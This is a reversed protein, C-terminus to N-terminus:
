RPVIAIEIRPNRQTATAEPNPRNVQSQGYGVPVWRYGEGLRDALYRQVALAQRFTLDASAEPTMDTGGHSGILITAQPYRQLDSLITDLLQVGEATLTTQQAEFLLSSPFTVRDRVLQFLPDMTPSRVDVGSGGEGTPSATPSEPNVDANPNPSAPDMPNAATAAGGAALQNLREVRAELSGGRVVGGARTEVAAVRKDLVELEATLASLESEITARQATDWIPPATTPEPPVATATPPSPTALPALDESWWQPFQRVKRVIRSAHRQAVEQLPPESVAPGPLLQAVWAGALWGIGMGAGLLTLRVLLTWLTSLTGLGGRPTPAAVPSIPEGIPTGLNTGANAGM